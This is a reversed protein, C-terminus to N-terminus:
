KRLYVFFVMEFAAVSGLLCALVEAGSQASSAKGLGVVGAGL